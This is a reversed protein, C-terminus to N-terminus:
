LRKLKNKGRPNDNRGAGKKEGSGQGSDPDINTKLHPWKELTKCVKNKEVLDGLRGCEVTTPGTDESSPEPPVSCNSAGLLSGNRAGKISTIKSIKQFYMDIKGQDLGPHTKARINKKRVGKPSKSSLTVKEIRKVRERVPTPKGEKGLNRDPTKSREQTTSEPSKSVNSQKEKNEEVKRAPFKTEMKKIIDRIDHSTQERGKIDKFTKFTKKRPSTKTRSTILTEGRQNLIDPDRKRKPPNQEEISSVETDEENESAEKSEDAVYELRKRGRRVAEELFWSQTEASGAEKKNDQTNKAVGKPTKVLISPIKAGGWENKQYFEGNTYNGRGNLDLSNRSRPM